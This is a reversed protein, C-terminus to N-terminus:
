LIPKDWLILIVYLVLVITLFAQASYLICLFLEFLTDYEKKKTIRRKVFFMVVGIVLSWALFLTIMMGWTM